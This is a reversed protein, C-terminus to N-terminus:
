IRRIVIGDRKSFFLAEGNQLPPDKENPLPRSMIEEIVGDVERSKKVLFERLKDKNIKNM